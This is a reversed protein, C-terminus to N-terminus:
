RASPSCPILFEFHVKRMFLFNNFIAVDKNIFGGTLSSDTCSPLFFILLFFSLTSTFIVLPSYPRRGGIYKKYFLYDQLWKRLVVINICVCTCYGSSNVCFFPANNRWLCFSNGNRALWTIIYFGYFFINNGQMEGLIVEVNIGPAQFIKM